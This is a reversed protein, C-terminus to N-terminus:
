VIDVFSPFHSFSKMRQPKNMERTRPRSLLSKESRCTHKVTENKLTKEHLVQASTSTAQLETAREM